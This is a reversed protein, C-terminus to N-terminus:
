AGNSNKAILSPCCIFRNEPLRSKAIVYKLTDAILKREKGSVIFSAHSMYAFCHIGHDYLNRLKHELAGQEGGRPLSQDFVLTLRQTRLSILHILESSFIYKPASSSNTKKLKLGTDPDLFLNECDCNSVCSFYTERNTVTTLVESSIVPTDLFREFARLEESSAKETLMPHISWDGFYRLWGLLSQKVIDYSDGFYRMHM